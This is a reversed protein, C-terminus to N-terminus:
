VIVSFTKMSSISKTLFMDASKRLLDLFFSNTLSVIFSAQKAIDPPAINQCVYLCVSLCVSLHILPIDSCLYAM